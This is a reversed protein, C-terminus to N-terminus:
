AFEVPVFGADSMTAATHWTNDTGIQVTTKTSDMLYKAAIMSNLLDHIQILQMVADKDRYICRTIIDM